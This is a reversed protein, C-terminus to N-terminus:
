KEKIINVLDILSTIYIDELTYEAENFSFKALPFHRQIRPVVCEKTLLKYNQKKDIYIHNHLNIEFNAFANEYTYVAFYLHM